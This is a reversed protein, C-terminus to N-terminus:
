TNSQACTPVDNAGETRYLAVLIWLHQLGQFQNPLNNLQARSFLGMTVTPPTIRGKEWEIITFPSVRLMRALTVQSLRTELRRKKVHEGITQPNEPYAKPKLARLTVPVGSPLYSVYGQLRGQALFQLAPPQVSFGPALLGSKKIHAYATCRYSTRSGKYPFEQRRNDAIASQKTEALRTDKLKSAQARAPRLRHQAIHQKCDSFSGDGDLCV